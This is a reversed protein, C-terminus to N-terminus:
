VKRDVGISWTGHEGRPDHWGGGVSNMRQSIVEEKRLLIVM